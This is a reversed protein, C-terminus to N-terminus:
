EHPLMTKVVLLRGPEGKKTPAIPFAGSAPVELELVGIESPEGRTGLMALRQKYPAAVLGIDGPRFIVGLSDANGPAGARSEWLVKGGRKTRLQVGRHSDISWWRGHPGRHTSWAALGPAPRWTREVKWTKTDVLGRTLHALDLLLRDDERAIM